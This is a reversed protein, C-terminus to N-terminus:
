LNALSNSLSMPGNSAFHTCVQVQSPVRRRVVVSVNRHQRVWTGFMSLPCGSKTRCRLTLVCPLCEVRPVYCCSSGPRTNNAERRRDKSRTAQGQQQVSVVRVMVSIPDACILSNAYWGSNLRQFSVNEATGKLGFHHNDYSAATGSTTPLNLAASTAM